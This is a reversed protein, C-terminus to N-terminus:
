ISVYLNRRLPLRSIRLSAPYIKTKQKIDWPSTLMLYNFGQWTSYIKSKRQETYLSEQSAHNNRSQFSPHYSFLPTNWHGLLFEEPATEGTDCQVSLGSLFSPFLSLLFSSLFIQDRWKEGEGRHTPAGRQSIVNSTISLLGTQWLAM